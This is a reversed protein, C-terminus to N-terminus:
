GLRRHRAALILLGSAVLLATGPEPIVVVNNVAFSALVTLDSAEGYTAGDLATLTVGVISVLPSTNVVASLSPVPYSIPVGGAVPNTGSSDTAGWSGNVTLPGVFVTYGSGGPSPPMIPGFGVDSTLSATEITIEDYGGYPTSLSLSINPDLVLNLSDMTQAASDLTLSGSLGPSITSGVVVGGVLVTISVSGSTVDYLIPAASAPRSTGFSLVLGLLAVTLGLKRSGTMSSFIAPQLSRRAALRM